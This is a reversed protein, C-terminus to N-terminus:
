KKGKSRTYNGKKIITINDHALIDLGDYTSGNLTLTITENHTVEDLAAVIAQSKFKLVLDEYGDGQDTNCSGDTTYRAADDFAYRHLAVGQLSLSSPDINRVDFDASGLFVVPLVGKQTVNFPNKCSGPKIDLITGEALSRNSRKKCKKM